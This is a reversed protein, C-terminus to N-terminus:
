TLIDILESQEKSMKLPTGQKFKIGDATQCIVKDGISVYWTVEEVDLL